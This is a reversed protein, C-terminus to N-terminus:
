GFLSSMMPGGAPSGDSTQGRGEPSWSPSRRIWRRLDEKLYYRKGLSILLGEVEEAFRRWDITAAHPHHNLTGVKYEDVFGATLRILALTQKPDIVPELSVWTAIGRRHALRLVELREEPLAARPEWEASQGPDSFTLTAGYRDGERLLDLARLSRLGGKSLITVPFGHRHLAEIAEGALDRDRSSPPYPDSTFCLLVPEKEGRWKRADAEIREIIRDRPEAEGAFAERFQRGLRPVYCYRCGHGCGDYLNVALGSYEGARGAPRYLAPRM